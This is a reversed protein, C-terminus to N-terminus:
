LSIAPREKVAYKLRAYYVEAVTKGVFNKLVLLHHDEIPDFAICGAGPFLTGNAIHHAITNGQPNSCHYLIPNGRRDICFGIDFDNALQQAIDLIKARIQRQQTGPEERRMLYELADRSLIHVGIRSFLNCSHTTRTSKYFDKLTDRLERLQNRDAQEFVAITEDWASSIVCSAADFTISLIDHLRQQREAKESRPLPRPNLFAEKIADIANGYHPDCPSLGYLFSCLQDPHLEYMLTHLNSLDKPDDLDAQFFTNTYLGNRQRQLVISMATGKTPTEKYYLM